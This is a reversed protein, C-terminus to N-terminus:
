FQFCFLVPGFQDLRGKLPDNPIADGTRVNDFDSLPGPQGFQPSPPSFVLQTWDPGDSAVHASNVALQAVEHRSNPPFLIQARTYKGKRAMIGGICLDRMPYHRVHIAPQIKAPIIGTEHESKM